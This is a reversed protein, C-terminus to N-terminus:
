ELVVEHFEHSAREPSLRAIHENEAVLYYQMAEDVPVKVSFTKGDESSVSFSTKEWARFTQPRYFLWVQEANVVDATITVSDAEVQHTLNSITPQEKKLLPHNLLYATRQDML